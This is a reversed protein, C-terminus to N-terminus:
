KKLYIKTFKRSPYITKLFYVKRREDKVYPVVYIYGGVKLLFLYQNEYKFHEINAVLNGSLINEIAWEFNFGRSELLLLNKEESYEFRYEM